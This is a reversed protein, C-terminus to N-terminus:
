HHLLSGPDRPIGHWTVVLTTRRQRLESRCIKRFLLGPRFAAPPEITKETVLLIGESPKLHLWWGFIMFHTIDKEKITEIKKLLINRTLLIHAPSWAPFVHQEGNLKWPNKAVSVHLYQCVWIQCLGVLHDNPSKRIGGPSNSGSASVRMREEGVIYKESRWNSRCFSRVIYGYWIYIFIYIYIYQIYICIINGLYSSGWKHGYKEELIWPENMNLKINMSTGGLFPQDAWDHWCWWRWFVGIERIETKWPPTTIVHHKIISSKQITCPLMGCAVWPVVRRCPSVAVHCWWGLLNTSDERGRKRTFFLLLLLM